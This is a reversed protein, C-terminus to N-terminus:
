AGTPAFRCRDALHDALVVLPRALALLIRNRPLDPHPRTPLWRAGELARGIRLREEAPAADALRALQRREFALQSRVEELLEDLLDNLGEDRDGYWRSKELRHEIRLRRRLVEDTVAAGDPLVRRAVPWLHLWRAAECRTLTAQLELTLRQRTRLAEGEIREHVPPLASLEAMIRRLRDDQSAVVAVADHDTM